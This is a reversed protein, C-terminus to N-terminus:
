AHASRVPEFADDHITAHHRAHGQGSNTWQRVLMEAAPLTHARPKYHKGHHCNILIIVGDGYRAACLLGAM